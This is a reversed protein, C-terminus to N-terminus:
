DNARLKRPSTIRFAANRAANSFIGDFKRERCLFFENGLSKETRSLEIKLEDEAAKAKDAGLFDASKLKPIWRFKSAPPFGSNIEALRRQTDNTYGIKVLVMGVYEFPKGGLLHEIPGDFQVAYLCAPGDEYQSVRQGFSPAVGKSPNYSDIFPVDEDPPESIPPQGFVSTERVPWRWVFKADHEHMLEAQSAIVRGRNKWDTNPAADKIGHKRMARWARKVPVAYTWRDHWGKANKWEIADPHMADVDAIRVPEIELLGLIQGRNQRDTEPSDAGYILVLDGDRYRELFKDRVGERTFGLYGAEEPNFGWFARLWIRPLNASM